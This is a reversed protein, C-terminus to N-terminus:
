LSDADHVHMEYKKREIQLLMSSCLYSNWYTTDTYFLKTTQQM